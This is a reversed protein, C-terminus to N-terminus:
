CTGLGIEPVTCTQGACISASVLEVGTNTTPGFRMGDFAALSQSSVQGPMAAILTCTDHHCPRDSRDTEDDMAQRGSKCDPRSVDLNPLRGRPPSKPLPRVSTKISRRKSVGWTVATRVRPCEPEVEPFRAAIADSPDAVLFGVGRISPVQRHCFRRWETGNSGPCAVPTGTIVQVQVKGGYRRSYLGRQQACEYEYM